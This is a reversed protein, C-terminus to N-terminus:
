PTSTMLVLDSDALTTDPQAGLVLDAMRLSAAEAESLHWAMAALHNPLFAGDGDQNSVMLPAQRAIRDWQARTERMQARLSASATLDPHTEVAANLLSVAVQARARATYFARVDARSAPWGDTHTILTSLQQSSEGAWGAFLRLAQALDAETDLDSVLGAHVRGNYRALAEVGAILRPTMEGDEVPRLLRAAASLDPDIKENRTVGTAAIQLYDALAGALGAQWAPQATLQRAPAWGPKDTTWGPGELERVILTIAVGATPSTWSQASEQSVPTADVEHASWMLAPYGGILLALVSVKALAKIASWIRAGHVMVPSPQANRIDIDKNRGLVTVVPGERRYAERSDVPVLSM